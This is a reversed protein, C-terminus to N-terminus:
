FTEYYACKHTFSNWFEADWEFGKYVKSNESKKGCWGTQNNTHYIIWYESEDLSMFFGNHGPGYANNRTAKTFVPNPYKTWHSPNMPDGNQQPSLLGLCYNDNSCQSASYIVFLNGSPGILAEPGENVPASTMEWDYTPSSILVRSGDLTWPNSLKAIFLRQHWQQQDSPDKMGSFLLYCQNNYVFTNPDIAWYDANPDFVKGLFPNELL